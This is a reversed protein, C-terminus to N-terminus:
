DHPAPGSNHEAPGLAHKAFSEYFWAWNWWKGAGPDWPGHRDTRTIPHIDEHGLCRQRVEDYPLQHERFMQVARWAAVDHQRRTFPLRIMGDETVRVPVVVEIGLLRLNPDNGPFLQLPNGADPWREGWWDYEEQVEGLDIFGDKKHKVWHDWIAVGGKGLLRYIRRAEPNLGHAWCRVWWPAITVIDPYDDDWHCLPPYRRQDPDDALARADKWYVWTVMDNPFANGREDYYEATYANPDLGRRIGKGPRTKGTAHICVGYVKTKKRSKRPTDDWPTVIYSM